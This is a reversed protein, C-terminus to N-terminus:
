PDGYFRNRELGFKSIWAEALECGVRNRRDVASQWCPRRM